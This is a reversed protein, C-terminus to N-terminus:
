YTRTPDEYYISRYGVLLMDCTARRGDRGPKSDLPFFALRAGRIEMHGWTVSPATEDVVFSPSAAGPALTFRDPRTTVTFDGHGNTVVGVITHARQERNQEVYVTAGEGMLGAQAELLAQRAAKIEREREAYHPYRPKMELDNLRKSAEQVTITM